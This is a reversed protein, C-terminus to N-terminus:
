LTHRHEVFTGFHVLLYRSILSVGDRRKKGFPHMVVVEVVSSLGRICDSEAQEVTENFYFHSIPAFLGRKLATATAVAVGIVTTSFHDILVTHLRIM